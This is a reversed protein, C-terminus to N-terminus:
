TPIICCTGRGDKKVCFFTSFCYSTAIDCTLVDMNHLEKIDHKVIAEFACAIIYPDACYPVTCLKLKLHVPPGPVKGIGGDFVHSYQMSLSLWEQKEKENLHTCM